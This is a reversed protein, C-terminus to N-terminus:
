RCVDMGQNPNSGVIEADSRAFFVARSSHDAAKEFVAMNYASSSRVNNRNIYRARKCSESFSIKIKEFSKCTFVYKLKM